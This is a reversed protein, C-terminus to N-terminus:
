VLQSGAPMRESSSGRSSSRSRSSSRTGGGGCNVPADTRSPRGIFVFDFSLYKGTRRRGGAIMRDWREADLLIRSREFRVPGNM